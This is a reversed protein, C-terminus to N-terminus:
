AFFEEVPLQLLVLDGVGGVVFWGKAEHDAVEGAPVYKYITVGAPDTAFDGPLEM